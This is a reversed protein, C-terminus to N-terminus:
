VATGLPCNRRGTRANCLVELSRVAGKISIALTHNRVLYSGFGKSSAVSLILRPSHCRATVCIPAQLLSMAITAAEDCFCLCRTLHRSISLPLQRQFSLKPTHQFFHADLFSVAAPTGM